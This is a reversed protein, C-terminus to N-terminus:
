KELRTLFSSHSQQRNWHYGRCASTGGTHTLYRPSVAALPSQSCSQCTGTTDHWCCSPVLRSRASASRPHRGWRRRGGCTGHGFWLPTTFVTYTNISHLFHTSGVQGRRHIIEYPLNICKTYPDTSRLMKLFLWRQQTEFIIYWLLSLMIKRIFQHSTYITFKKNSAYACFDGVKTKAWSAKRLICGTRTYIKRPLSNYKQLLVVNKLAGARCLM